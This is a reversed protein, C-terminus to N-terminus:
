KDFFSSDIKEADAFRKSVTYFPGVAQQFARVQSESADSLKWEGAKIPANWLTFAAFSTLMMAVASAMLMGGLKDVVPLFRVRIGSAKGALLRLLLLTVSFVAWMGVFVYYWIFTEDQGTKEFVMVGLPMGAVSAASGSIMICILSITNSWLGENVSMALAAFFLFGLLVLLYIM